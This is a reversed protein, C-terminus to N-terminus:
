LSALPVIAVHKRVKQLFFERRGAVLYEFVIGVVAAYGRHAAHPRVSFRKLCATRLEAFHKFVPEKHLNTGAVCHRTHRQWAYRFFGCDIAFTDRRLSRRAKLFSPNSPGYEPAFCWNISRPVRWTRMGFGCLLSIEPANSEFIKRSAPMERLSHSSM